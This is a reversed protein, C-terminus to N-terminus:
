GRCLVPCAPVRKGLEQTAVRVAAREHPIGRQVALPEDRITLSSSGLSSSVDLPHKRERARVKADDTLGM